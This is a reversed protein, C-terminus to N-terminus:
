KEFVPSLEDFSAQLKIDGCKLKVVGFEFGIVTRTGSAWALTQNKPEFKVRDGVSIQTQTTM